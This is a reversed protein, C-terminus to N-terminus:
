WVRGVVIILKEFPDELYVGSEDAAACGRQLREEVM